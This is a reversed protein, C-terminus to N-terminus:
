IGVAMRTEVFRFKIHKINIVYPGLQLTSEKTSIAQAALAPPMQSNSQNKKESLPLSMVLCWLVLPKFGMISPDGKEKTLLNRLM